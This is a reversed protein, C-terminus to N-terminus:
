IKTKKSKNRRHRTGDTGKVPLEPAPLAAVEKAELELALGARQLEARAELLRQELEEGSLMSLKHEHEIKFHQPIPQPHERKQQRAYVDVVIHGQAIFDL